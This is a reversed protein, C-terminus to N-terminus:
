FKTPLVRKSLTRHSGAQRAFDRGFHPRARTDKGPGIKAPEFTMDM